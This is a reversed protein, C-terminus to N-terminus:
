GALVDQVIATLCNQPVTAEQSMLISFPLLEWYPKPIREPPWSALVMQLRMYSARRKGRRSGWLHVTSLGWDHGVRTARHVTDRWARRRRSNELCSSQAPHRKRRWPLHVTADTWPQLIHSSPKVRTALSFHRATEKLIMGSKIELVSQTGESIAWM